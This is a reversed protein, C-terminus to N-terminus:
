MVGIIVRSSEPGINQYTVLMKGSDAPITAFVSTGPGGYNEKAIRLPTDSANARQNFVAIQQGLRKCNLTVQCTSSPIASSLVVIVTVDEPVEIVKLDEGPETFDSRELQLVCERWNKLQPLGAIDDYKITYDQASDANWVPQGTKASVLNGKNPAGRNENTIWHIPYGDNGGDLSVKIIAKRDVFYGESLQQGGHMLFGNDNTKLEYGLQNGHINFFQIRSNMVADYAIVTANNFPLHNTENLEIM